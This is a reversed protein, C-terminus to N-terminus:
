AFSRTCTSVLMCLADRRWARGCVSQRRSSPPAIRNSWVRMTPQATADTRPPDITDRYWGSESVWVNYRVKEGFGGRSVEQQGNREKRRVVARRLRKVAHVGLAAGALALNGQPLATVALGVALSWM